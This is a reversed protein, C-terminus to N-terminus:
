KGIFKAAAAVVAVAVTAVATAATGVIVIMTVSIMKIMTMMMQYCTIINSDYDACLTRILSAVFVVFLMLVTLSVSKMIIIVQITLIYIKDDDGDINNVLEKFAVLNQEWSHVADEVTLHHDQKIEFCTFSAVNRRILCVLLSKLQISCYYLSIWNCPM